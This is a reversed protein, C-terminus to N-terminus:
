IQIKVGQGWTKNEQPVGLWDLAKEGFSLAERGDLPVAPTPARIWYNLSTDLDDAIEAGLEAFGRLNRVSVRALGLNPVTGLIPVGRANAADTFNRLADKDPFGLILEGDRASKPFEPLELVDLPFDWILGDCSMRQPKGEVKAVPRTTEAPLKSPLDNASDKRFTLYVLFSLVVVSAWLVIETVLNRRM